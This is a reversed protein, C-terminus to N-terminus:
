SIQRVVLDYDDVELVEVEIFDGCAADCDEILCVADVEPAQGYYRGTAYGPEGLEDVLCVLRQGVQAANKAFVIEQQALMLEEQRELKVDDSVQGALEAAATGAERQYTFSGLCDFRAWRVFALLEAFQEDTEGPFGVMVTTRLVVEPMFKRFDEVVQTTRKKTDSRRMARLLTDNIHQIPIDVYPLIKESQSMQEIFTRDVSAPYLYMVRIWDLGDIKELAALLKVLGNKLGLDKGYFISDQAILILERAGGAVLEGAEDVLVELPKSVFEGRISPITCFTCNRNCGEAIRLYAYHQPTILLRGRDDHIAAAPQNLYLPPNGAATVEKVIQAIRDRDGLGVIADIGDVAKGLEEGMRQALCGAAIVKGVNGKRKQEVAYAITDIAEQKASEIFGCTNIVVVDAHDPDSSLLLGEQGMLALMKESDVTNKPCGLSVFGVTVPM